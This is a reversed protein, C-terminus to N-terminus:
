PFDLVYRDALMQQQKGSGDFVLKPTPEPGV